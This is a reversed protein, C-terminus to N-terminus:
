TPCLSVINGHKSLSLFILETLIHPIYIIIRNQRCTLIEYPLLKVISDEM